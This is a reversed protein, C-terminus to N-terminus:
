CPTVHPANSLPNTYESNPKLWRMAKRFNRGYSGQRVRAAGHRFAWGDASSTPSDPFHARNMPVHGSHMPMGHTHPPGGRVPIPVGGGHNGMRAGMGQGRMMGGRGRMMRPDMGRRLPIGRSLPPPSGPPSELPPPSSRRMGGQHQRPQGGRPMPGRGHQHMNARIDAAYSDFDEEEYDEGEDFQASRGGDEEGDSSDWARGRGPGMKPPFVPEEDDYSDYEFDEEGFYEGDEEEEDSETDFRARRLHPPYRGDSSFAQRHPHNMHVGRRGTGTDFRSAHELVPGHPMSMPQRDRGALSEGGAWQQHDYGPEFGRGVNPYPNGMLDEKPNWDVNLDNIPHPSSHVIPM